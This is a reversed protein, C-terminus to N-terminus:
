QKVYESGEKIVALSWIGAAGNYINYTVIYKQGEADNPFNNLLITNIKELRVSEEQEAKGDRVDFNGYNGNGVLTYDASTLTYKITNDPVWTTGDHGFKITENIVTPIANWVSGDYVYNVNETSLSGSYLDFQVAVFDSEAAFQYLTKLYIGIKYIAEDENSFNPYSQGMLNYEAQTFTIPADWTGTYTFRTTKSIVTAEVLVYGSGDFELLMNLTTNTGNYIAYTVFYQDGTATSPFNNLLITEIKTRRAEVTEEDKGERVDFNNYQGNGVSAFDAETLTYGNILVYENSANLQVLMDRTSASGDYVAYTVLYQQGVATDPFNNLLITEIKARRSEITEEDRGSRIDFNDYQGNGVLDFDTDTLTYEIQPALTNYTLDVVSGNPESSFKSGLFSNFDGSTNLSTLNLAAYDDDTLTYSEFNIPSYLKFTVTALSGLGWAQYKSSLFGPIMSKADDLNSFNGYSLDLSEYDEDTLTYVAEGSIVSEKADLEAYIDEMPNCSTFLLSLIAFSYFIKKM